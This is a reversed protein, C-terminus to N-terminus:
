WTSGTTGPPPASSPRGGRRSRSGRATREPTGSTSTTRPGASPSPSSSGTATGRSRCRSRSARIAPARTSWCMRSSPTGLRHFRSRSRTGAPGGGPDGSRHPLALLPLGELGSDVLPVGVRGGEIRDVESWKGSEVDVIQLVAEDSNNQKVQFALTRGDWSPSWAGLSISGDKSWQNPDLLVREPGNGERWYLVAKEQTPARRRYFMRGGRKLPLMTQEVYLIEELRKAIAAREPLAALFDRSLGDEAAVWADTRPSKGDELWRYPDAVPVGHIVDVVEERPAAPYALPTTMSPGPASAGGSTTACAALLSAAVLSSAVSALRSPLRAM